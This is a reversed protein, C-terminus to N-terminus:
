YGGRQIAASRVIASPPAPVFDPLKLFWLNSADYRLTVAFVNTSADTSASALALRSAAILPYSKINADINGRALTLREDDTLGSISARAAEAALQQVSHVIALYAGFVRIGFLMMLFVPVVLAFEVAVSARSCGISRSVVRQICRIM